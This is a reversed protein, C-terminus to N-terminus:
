RLREGFFITALFGVALVVWISLALTFGIYVFDM